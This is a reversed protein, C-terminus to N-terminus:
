NQNLLAKGIGKMAAPLFNGQSGDWSIVRLVMGSIVRLVMGSVVRLVMGSVVM